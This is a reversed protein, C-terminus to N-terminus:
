RKRKPKPPLTKRREDLYKKRVMTIFKQVRESQYDRYTWPLKQWAGRAWYLTLESYIGDSLAIRFGTQKTTSLLLRGHNILGPDLNILRIGEPSFSKEIGNTFVKIAAQRAPDVPDRFSIIQRIGEGGLEDDYYTSYEKSFSYPESMDDIPGFEESLIALTKNYVDVDHYIIGVILKEKEFEQAAGMIKRGRTINVNYENKEM